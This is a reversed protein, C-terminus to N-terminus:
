FTYILNVAAQTPGVYNHHQGSAVKQGCDACEYTDYHSYIWGLAILAEINWHRDVIWSYGYLLGGGGMWGQFRHDKLQSFDTGLLKLDMDLNGWNFQGGLLHAGIFHGSFTQCFWYRGEPMLNWQKWRHGNVTWDNITGQLQITWKAAVRTEYAIQPTLTLDSLLNTKIAHSQARTHGLCLLAMAMVTFLRIIRNM